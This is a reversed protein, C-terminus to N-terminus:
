TAARVRTVAAAILTRVTTEEGNMTEWGLDAVLVLDDGVRAVAVPWTWPALATEGEGRVQTSTKFLVAEDGADFIGFSQWERSDTTPKGPCRSIAANLEDFAQAAAGPKYRVITQLIVSPASSEGGGASPYLATM